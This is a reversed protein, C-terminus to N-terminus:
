LIRRQREVLYPCIPHQKGKLAVELLPVCPFRDKILEYTAPGVVIQGPQAVFSELRSAVNVADGIVTYERRRSSGLDGAVVTGSNIGIRMKLPRLIKQPAPTEGAAFAASVAAGCASINPGALPSAAERALSLDDLSQHILLAAAVARVAHDPQPLPAGFIAMLGDGVFKDLTGDHAFVAEALREFVSNLMEAVEAPEMTEAMASFGSLDAFLVSVERQEALMEGGHAHQVAVIRDVVRPSSYRSLRERIARERQVDERLRSQEIGVAILGSLATLLELDSATFSNESRDTDLYILGEIQGAHYLPACMAAQVGAQRVSAADAFRRDAAVNVVLVAQRAHLAERAISRSITVEGAADPGQTRAVTLSVRDLEEDCLCICARHARLGDLALEVVQALLENLGATALMAESIRRFLAVASIRQAALSREFDEVQISHSIDSKRFREDFVAGTAEGTPGPERHFWLDLSSEASTGLTIRDGNALPARKIRRGNVSTGTKSDCDAITWGGGSPEIRAHHRSVHPLLLVLDCDKGRGLLAAAHFSAHHTQGDLVYSLRIGDPENV